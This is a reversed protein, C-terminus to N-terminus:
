VELAESPHLATIDHPLRTWQENDLTVLTAEFRRATAAYVADAGRLKAEIALDAAAEALDDDLVIPTVHPVESLMKVAQRALGPDGTARGIAGAVEPKVLNPV